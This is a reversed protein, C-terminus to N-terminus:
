AISNFLMIIMNFKIIGYHLIEYTLLKKQIKSKRHLSISLFPFLIMQSSNYRDYTNDLKQDRLLKRTSNEVTQSQNNFRKRSLNRSIKNMKLLDNIRITNKSSEIPTKCQNKKKITRIAKSSRESITISTNVSPPNPSATAPTRFQNFIYAFKHKQNRNSLHVTHPKNLPAFYTKRTPEGRSKLIFHKLKLAYFPPQQSLM